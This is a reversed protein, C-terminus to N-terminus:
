TAGQSVAEANSPRTLSAFATAAITAWVASGLALHLALMHIPFGFLITAAGVAIQLVFLAAVAMSLLRLDRSRDRGRFGLHVSYLLFVGVILAVYRHGMHIAEPFGRPFVDGQCLPWTVCAATAGSATVYSGSLILFYVAGASILALKPFRDPSQGDSRLLRGALPGKFAVVTVLVLCALLAEAVALHVAVIEGPLEQLVTIGGLLAQIVLLVVALAAPITLWREKRYAFWVTGCTILILPSVIASAVFRHSYEVIATFELPPFLKGYCLPWDPCGLGSETVRVVGGLVVLAFVALVTTLSISKLWRHSKGPQALTGASQAVAM